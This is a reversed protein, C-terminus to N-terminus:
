TGTEDAMDAKSFSGAPCPEFDQRDAAAISIDCEPFLATLLAILDHNIRGQQSIIVIKEVTFREIPNKTNAAKKRSRIRYEKEKKCDLIIHQNEEPCWSAIIVGPVIWGAM